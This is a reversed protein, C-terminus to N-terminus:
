ESDKFSLKIKIETSSMSTVEWGQFNANIDEDEQDKSYLNIDIMRNRSGRTEDNLM